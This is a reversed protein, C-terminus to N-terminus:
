FQNKVSFSAAQGQFIKACRKCFDTQGEFIERDPYFPHNVGHSIGIYEMHNRRTLGALTQLPLGIESLLQLLIGREFPRTVAMKENLIQPGLTYDVLMAFSIM